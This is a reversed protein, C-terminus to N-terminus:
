GRELVTENRAGTGPFVYDFELFMSEGLIGSSLIDTEVFAQVGTRSYAYRTVGAYIPSRDLRADIDPDGPLTRNFTLKLRGRLEPDTRNAEQLQLFITELDELRDFLTGYHFTYEPDNDLQRRFAGVAPHEAGTGIALAGRMAELLDRQADPVLSLFVIGDARAAHKPDVVFAYFHSGNPLVLDQTQVFGLMAMLRAALPGEEATKYHLAIHGMSRAGLATDDPVPNTAM